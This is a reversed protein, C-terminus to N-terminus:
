EREILRWSGCECFTVRYWVGTHTWARDAEVCAGIQGYHPEDPDCTM